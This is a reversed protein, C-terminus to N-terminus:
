SDDDQQASASTEDDNSLLKGINPFSTFLLRFRDLHQLFYTEFFFKIRM